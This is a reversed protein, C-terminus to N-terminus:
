NAGFESEIWCKIEDRVTRFGTMIEEDKGRFKSPDTFGKHIHKNGRPFVLCTENARDCVTIVYDFDMNMFRELDKSIHGKIDIGIEKMTRIAYPHVRSPEAGTSYVEFRDGYLNRLLGEAMQSRASNHTCIFIIKPDHSACPINKSTVSCSKISIKM